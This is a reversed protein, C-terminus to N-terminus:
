CFPNFIVEKPKLAKGSKTLSTVVHLPSPVLSKAIGIGRWASKVFVFDLINVENIKRAVSYGLVVNEDEKLCAIKVNVNPSIM